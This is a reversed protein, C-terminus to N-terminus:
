KIAVKGGFGYFVPPPIWVIKIIMKRNNKLYFDNLLLFSYLIAIDSNKLYM